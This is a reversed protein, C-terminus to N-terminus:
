TRGVELGHIFRACFRKLPRRRRRRRGLGPAVQVWSLGFLAGAGPRGLCHAGSPGQHSYSLVLWARICTRVVGSVCRLAALCVLVLGVREVWPHIIQKHVHNTKDALRIGEDAQSRDLFCIALFLISIPSLFLLRPGDLRAVGKDRHLPGPERGDRGDGQRRLQGRGRPAVPM